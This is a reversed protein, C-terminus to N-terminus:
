VEQRCSMISIEQQYVARSIGCRESGRGLVRAIHLAPLRPCVAMFPLTAQPTSAAPRCRRTSRRASGPPGGAVGGQVGRQRRRPQRAQRPVLQGGHQGLAPAGGHRGVAAHLVCCAACCPTRAPGLEAGSRRGACGPRATHPGALACTCASSSWEADKTKAAPRLIGCSWPTGVHVSHGVACHPPGCMGCAAHLLVAGAPRRRRAAMCAM